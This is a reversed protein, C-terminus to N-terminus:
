GSLSLYNNSWESGQIILRLLRKILGEFRSIFVVLSESSLIRGTPSIGLFSVPYLQITTRFFCLIIRVQWLLHFQLILRLFLYM